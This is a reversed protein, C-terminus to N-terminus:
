GGRRDFSRTFVPAMFAASQLFQQMEEIERTDEPEVQKGDITRVLLVGEVSAVSKFLGFFWSQTVFASGPIVSLGKARDGFVESLRRSLANALNRRQAAEGVRREFETM